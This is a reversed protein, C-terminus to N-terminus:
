VDAEQEAPAARYAALEADFQEKSIEEGGVIESAIPREEFSISGDRETVRYYHM